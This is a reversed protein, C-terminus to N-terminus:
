WYKFLCDYEWLRNLFISKRKSLKYAKEYLGAKLFSMVLLESKGEEDVISKQDNKLQKIENLKDNNQNRM